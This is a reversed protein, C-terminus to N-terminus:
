PPLESAVTRTRPSRQQNLQNVAILTGLVEGRPWSPPDGGLVTTNIISPVASATTHVYSTIRALGTQYLHVDFFQRLM